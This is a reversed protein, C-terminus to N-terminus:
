DDEDYTEFPRFNWVDYLYYSGTEGTAVFGKGGVTFAVPNTRAYGEFDTKEVWTDGTFSYEWVSSLTSTSKDGLMVYAKGDLVFSSANQRIITWNDDDDLEIKKTWTDATPDYEWMDTLYVGNSVGTCVYAKDNYTFATSGHRKQGGISQVKVWQSGADKTPDFRYFDNIDVLGDLYGTGLYGYNLLSFGVAKYRAEGLFDDKQTWMDTTPDYEWFDKLKYDGDYGTGIYGKGNIAFAVAATRGKGPFDAMRDWRDTSPNYKWFDKLYQYGDDQDDNYGLGVYAYDDIVFSVASGRPLGEFSSKEIWNGLPDDDDNNCGVLLFLGLVITLLKRM